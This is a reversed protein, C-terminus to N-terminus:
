LLEKTKYKRGPMQGWASVLNKLTEFDRQRGQVLGVWSGGSNRFALRITAYDKLEAVMDDSFSHDILQRIVRNAFLRPPKPDTM